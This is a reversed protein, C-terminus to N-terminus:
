EVPEDLGDGALLDATEGALLDMEENTWPGYDLEEGREFVDQRLLVCATGGVAVVVAQGNRVAWEQEVTLNMNAPRERKKTTHRLREFPGSRIM